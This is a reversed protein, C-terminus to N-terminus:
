RTAVGAEIPIQLAQLATRGRAVWYQLVGPDEFWIANPQPPASAQGATRRLGGSRLWAAVDNKERIEELIGVVALMFSDFPPEPIPEEMTPTTAAVNERHLKVDLAREKSTYEVLCIHNNPQRQAKAVSDDLLVTTQSSHRPFAKWVKVLNKITPYKNEYQFRTLGFHSRDWVGVLDKAHEGFISEVMFSVSHPQASSWVIVDLGGKSDQCPTAVSPHFLYCLFSKFYPRAWVQRGAKSRLLLSGNLDLVVLKRHM